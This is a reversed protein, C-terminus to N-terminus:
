VANLNPNVVHAVRSHVEARSHDDDDRRQHVLHKEQHIQLHGSKLILHLRRLEEFNCVPGNKREIDDFNSDGNCCVSLKFQSEIVLKAVHVGKGFVVAVVIVIPLRVPLWAWLLERGLAKLRTINRLIVLVLGACVLGHSLGM